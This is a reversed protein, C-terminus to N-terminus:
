EVGGEYIFAGEVPMGFCRTIKVAPRISPNYRENEPSGIAQRSVHLIDALEELRSKMPHGRKAPKSEMRWEIGARSSTLRAKWRQRGCLM